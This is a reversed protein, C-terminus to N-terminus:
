YIIDGADNVKLLFINSQSKDGYSLTNGALIFGENNRLIGIAKDENSGGMKKLWLKNGSGDLKILLIDASGAQNTRMSGAIIVSGDNNVLISSADLHMGPESVENEWLKNGDKGYRTIMVTAYGATTGPGCTVIDGNSLEVSISGISNKHTAPRRQWVVDGNTRTRLLYTGTAYGNNELAGTLLLDGSSLETVSYCVEADGTPYTREWVIGGNPKIKTLYIDGLTATTDAYAQGALVLDGDSVRIVQRAITLKSTNYYIKWHKQGATNTGILFSSKNDGGCLLYGVGPAEAVSSIEAGPELFYEKRWLISGKNDLKVLQAKTGSMGAIVLNNDGTTIACRGYSAIRGPFTHYGSDYVSPTAAAPKENKKCSAAFFLLAVIPFLRPTNYILTM